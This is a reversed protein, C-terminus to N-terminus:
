GIAPTTEQENLPAEQATPNVRLFLTTGRGATSEISLEGGILSAREMMGALGLRQELPGFKILRDASFGVGDDEVILQIAPPRRELIVSVRTASAHKVINTLAEQAIRYIVTEATSNLRAQPDCHVDVDLKHRRGLEEAYHTLADPLGFDDLATPRLELAVHHVDRALVEVLNELGALVHSVEPNVGRVSGLRKVGLSLAVVHQGIQDHLERAIRRREAEQATVLQRVLREREQDHEKRDTVDMYMQLKGAFRDKEDYMVTTTVNTWIQTGDRRLLRVEEPQSSPRASKFAVEADHLNEPRLLGYMSEGLLDDIEYQLMRAFRQNVFTITNHINVICIGENATEVIERYRKESVRLAQESQRRGSIDLLITHFLPGQSTLIRRSILQIPLKDSARPRLLLETIAPESTMRSRRLHDLMEARSSPAVFMLLPKGVVRTFRDGIMTVATENIDVIVGNADLTALGVPAENYLSQFHDRADQLKEQVELAQEHRSRAEERLIDLARTLAAKPAALVTKRKRSM